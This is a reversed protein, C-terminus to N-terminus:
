KSTWHTSTKANKIYFVEEENLNNSDNYWPMHAAQFPAKSRLMKLRSAGQSMFPRYLAFTTDINSIFYGDTTENNYYQNEWLIVEEKKNFYDPLNDIKLSLGIKMISKESRMKNWFTELFNEPCQNIPVVDSDTYVYYDHIFSKYINTKWLALFGVNEKLRFINYKCEKYYELLPKYNSNNDIIHINKYGRVELANILDKLFSLRNRNNIIIPIDLHSKIKSKYFRNMILIYSRWFFYYVPILSQKIIPEIKGM